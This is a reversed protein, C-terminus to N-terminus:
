MDLGGKLAVGLSEGLPNRHDVADDDAGLERRDVGVEPNLCRQAEV